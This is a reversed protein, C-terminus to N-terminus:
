STATSCHAAAQKHSYQAPISHVVTLEGVDRLFCKQRWHNIYSYNKVGRVYRNHNFLPSANLARRQPKVLRAMAAASTATVAAASIIDSHHHGSRQSKFIVICVPEYREQRNVSSSRISLTCCRRTSYNPHNKKRKRLITTRPFYDAFNRVAVAM